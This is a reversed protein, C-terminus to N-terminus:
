YERVSLSVNEMVGLKDRFYVFNEKSFPNILIDTIEDNISM